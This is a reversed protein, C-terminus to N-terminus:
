RTRCSGRRRCPAGAGVDLGHRGRRVREGSQDVGHADVEGILVGAHQHDVADLDGLVLEFADDADLGDRKRGPGSLSMLRKRAPTFWTTTFYQFPRSCSRGAFGTRRCRSTGRWRRLAAGVGRAIVPRRLHGRGQDRRRGVGPPHVLLDLDVTREGAEDYKRTVAGSCISSTARGCRSASSCATVACTRRAWGTPPTARSSAPRCCASRSCRRTAPRSPSSRTTTSRTSTARRARTASSTPAPSRGTSARRRARSGEQLEDWSPM